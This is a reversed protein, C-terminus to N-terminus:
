FIVVILFPHLLPIRHVPLPISPHIHLVLLFLPNYIILLCSICKHFYQLPVWEKNPSDRSSIEGCVKTGLLDYLGRMGCCGTGGWPSLHQLSALYSASTWLAKWEKKKGSSNQALNRDAEIKKELGPM